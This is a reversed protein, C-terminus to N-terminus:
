PVFRSADWEGAATLTDVTNSTIALRRFQGGERVVTVPATTADALTVVLSTQDTGALSSGRFQVEYTRAGSVDDISLTVGFRYSPNLAELALRVDEADPNPDLPVTADGAFSLTLSSGDAVTFSQIES